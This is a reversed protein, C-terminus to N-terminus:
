LFPSYTGAFDKEPDEVEMHRKKLHHNVWGIFARRQTREWVAKDHETEEATKKTRSLWEPPDNSKATGTFSKALLLYIFHIYKYYFFLFLILLYFSLSLTVVV